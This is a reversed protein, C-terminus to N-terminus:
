LVTAKVYNSRLEAPPYRALLLRDLSLPPLCCGVNRGRRATTRLRTAVVPLLGARLAPYFSLAIFGRLPSQFNAGRWCRRGRAVSRTGGSGLVVSESRIM